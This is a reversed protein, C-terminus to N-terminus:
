EDEEGPLSGPFENIESYEYDTILLDFKLQELTGLMAVRDVGNFFTRTSNDERRTYAVILGKINGSRIEEMLETINKYVGSCDDRAPLSKVEATM